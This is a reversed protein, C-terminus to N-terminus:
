ITEHQSPNLFNSFNKLPETLQFITTLLIQTQRCFFILNAREDASWDDADTCSMATDLLLDLKSKTEDADEFCDTYQTLVELPSKNQNIM